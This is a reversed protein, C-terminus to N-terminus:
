PDSVSSLCRNLHHLQSGTGKIICFGTFLLTRGIKNIMDQVEVDTPNQGARRMAYQLEQIHFIVSYDWNLDSVEVQVEWGPFQVNTSMRGDRRM